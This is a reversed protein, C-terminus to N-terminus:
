ALCLRTHDSIPLLNLDESKLRGVRILSLLTAEIVSSDLDELSTLLTGLSLEGHKRVVREVALCNEENIVADWIVASRLLLSWNEIFITRTLIEERSIVRIQVNQACAWKVFPSDAELLDTAISGNQREVLWFEASSDRQIWFSVVSSKKQNDCFCPYECFRNIGLDSEILVWAKQEWESFLRIERRLKPSWAIHLTAKPPRTVACAQTFELRTHSNQQGM